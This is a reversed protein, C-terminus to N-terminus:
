FLSSVLDCVMDKGTVFRTSVSVAQIPIAPEPLQRIKVLDKVTCVARSAAASRAALELRQLDARCFQHHDPWEIVSAVQVAQERLTQRFAAPNGIGCFAVVPQDALQDISGTTGDREMLADCAFEVQAIRDAPVHTQIKAAISALQPKQVQNVRTIIAIDARALSSVPERLLGRPLLHGFGFPCTADILVIDLDRRLRRHQFGDDMVIAGIAHQGIAQRAAEVRDPNQVHPVDPFYLELELAEDNPRGERSGYGRSVIAPRHGAGDLMGALWRVLPTKGTGGTTLNGISIVPVEVGTSKQNNRDFSRNRRRIVTRYAPELLGLVRRTLGSRM